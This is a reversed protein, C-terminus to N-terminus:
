MFHENNSKTNCTDAQNTLSGLGNSMNNQAPAPIDVFNDNDSAGSQTATPSLLMVAQHITCYPTNLVPLSEFHNVIFLVDGLYNGTRITRM